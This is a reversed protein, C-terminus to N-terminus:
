PRAENEPRGNIALGTMLGIALGAIACTPLTVAFIIARTPTQSVALTAYASVSATGAAIGWVLMRVGPRSPLAMLLGIGLMTVMTAAGTILLKELPAPWTRNLLFRTAAGAAGGVLIWIAERVRLRPGPTIM